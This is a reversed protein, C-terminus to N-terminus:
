NDDLQVETETGARLTFVRPSGGSDPCLKVTGPPVIIRLPKRRRVSQSGARVDNLWLDFSSHLDKGSYRVVLVAGQTLEVRLDMLVAGSELKVDGLWGVRDPECEAWLHYTGPRMNSFKFSHAAGFAQPYSMSGVEAGLFHIQLVQERKCDPCVIEGSLSGSRAPKLVIGSKKLVIGERAGQVEIPDSYSLGSDPAWAGLWWKGTDGLEVEFTGDAASLGCEASSSQPLEKSLVISAGAVPL